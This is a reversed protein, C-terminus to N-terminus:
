FSGEGNFTGDVTDNKTSVGRNLLETEYQSMLHLNMEAKHHGACGNYTARANRYWAWLQQDSATKLNRM